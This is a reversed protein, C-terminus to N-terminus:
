LPFNLRSRVHFIGCRATIGNLNRNFPMKMKPGPASYRVLRLSRCRVLAVSGVVICNHVTFLRMIPRLRRALPALEKASRGSPEDTPPAVYDIQIESSFNLLTLGGRPDKKSRKGDHM